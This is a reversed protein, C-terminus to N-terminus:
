ENNTQDRLVKLKTNIARQIDDQNIFIFDNFYDPNKNVYDLILLYFKDTKNVFTKDDIQSRERELDTIKKACLKMEIILPSQFKNLKEENKEFKEDDTLNDYLKSFEQYSKSIEQSILKYYIHDELLKLNSRYRCESSVVKWNIYLWDFYIEVKKNKKLDNHSKIYALINKELKKAYKITISSTFLDRNGTSILIFYKPLGHFFKYFTEIQNIIHSIPLIKSINFTTYSNESFELQIFAYSKQLEKPMYVINTLKSSFNLFPNKYTIVSSRLNKFIMSNKFSPNGVFIDFLNLRNSKLPIEFISCIKDSNQFPCGSTKLDYIQTLPESLSLISKFNDKFYYEGGYNYVIDDPICKLKEIKQQKKNKQM